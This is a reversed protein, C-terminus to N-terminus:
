FGSKREASFTLNFDKGMYLHGYETLTEIEEDTYYHEICIKDTERRQENILAPINFRFVNNGLVNYHKGLDPEQLHKDRDFIGIIKNTNPIKSLKDLLKKYRPSKNLVGYFGGISLIFLVFYYFYYLTQYGNLAVDVLGLYDKEGGRGPLFYSVIVLLLLIIGLIKLLGHKKM